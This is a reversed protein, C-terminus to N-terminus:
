AEDKSSQIAKRNHKVDSKSTSIPTNLNIALFSALHQEFNFVLFGLISPANTAEYLQLYIPAWSSKPAAGAPARAAPAM